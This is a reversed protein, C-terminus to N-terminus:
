RLEPMHGDAPVDQPGTPLTAHLLAIREHPKLEDWREAQQELLQRTRFLREYMMTDWADLTMEPGYRDRLHQLLEPYLQAHHKHFHVRQVRDSAQALNMSALELKLYDVGTKAESYAVRSEKMREFHYRAEGIAAPILIGLMAVVFGALIVKFIELYFNFFPLRDGSARTTELYLIIGVTLLCLVLAAVVTVWLVRGAIDNM